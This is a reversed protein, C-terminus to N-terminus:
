AIARGTMLTSDEASSPDRKACSLEDELVQCNMVISGETSRSFSFNEKQLGKLM